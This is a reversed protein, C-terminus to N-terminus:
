VNELDLADFDDYRNLTKADIHIRLDIIVPGDTNLISALAPIDEMDKVMLYKLGYTKSLLELDGCIFDKPNTGPYESNFYREQTERILGLTNNNFVVIKIPLRKEGILLLEQLNMQLGGDGTFSIVQRDPHAIQAGVAAPLSYGMPGFGSAQILRQGKKLQIGQAVWMQNQGIDNTMIASKSIHPSLEAIFEVPDIGQENIRVNNGYLQQWAEIRDSWDQFSPVDQDKLELLLQDLFGSLEGQISISEDVSRNLETPDIDVHVIHASTYREKVKGVQRQGLRTGLAIVLDAKFIALNAQTHGHLGAFGVLPCTGDMGNLTSVVPIQTRKVLKKFKRTLRANQIGGGILLIPQQAEKICEVVEAVRAYDYSVTETTFSVLNSEDIEAFQVDIPIDLVVSGPRGSEALHFAKELEFRIMEPEMLTKAYKTIPKVMSVIDLDQFGNTRVGEGKVINARYDQGLFFVCPISDYQANVMGSIMNVAGPGSTAMAVGVKGTVRAYADAAFSSAQEHYNQIYQIKGTDLMSHLMRLIASGQFGFVHEVQKKVLYQAIYDAVIM